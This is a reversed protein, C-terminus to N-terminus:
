WPRQGEIVRLRTEENTYRKADAYALRLHRCGGSAPGLDFGDLHSAGSGGILREVVLLRAAAATVDEPLQRGLLSQLPDSVDLLGGWGIAELEPPASTRLLGSELGIAVLDDASYGQTGAAM